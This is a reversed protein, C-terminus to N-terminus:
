NKQTDSKCEVHHKKRKRRQGEVERGKGNRGGWGETECVRSGEEGKKGMEKKGKRQEREEM